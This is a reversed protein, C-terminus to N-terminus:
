EVVRGEFLLKVSKDRYSTSIVMVCVDFLNSGSNKVFWSIVIRSVRNLVFMWGVYEVKVCV